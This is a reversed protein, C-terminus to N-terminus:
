NEIEEVDLINILSPDFVAINEQGKEITVISDYGMSRIADIVPQSEIIRWAGNELRWLLYGISQETNPNEISEGNLVIFRSYFKAGTHKDEYRKETLDRLVPILKERESKDLANFSNKSNLNVSYLYTKDTGRDSAFQMAFPKSETFYITGAYNSVSKDFTDFKKASGHYYVKNFNEFLKLYKM